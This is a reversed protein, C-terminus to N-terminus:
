WARSLPIVKAGSIPEGKEDIVQGTITGGATLQVQVEPSEDTNIQESWRPAYGEARVHVDYVGSGVTELSFRGQPDDFQTWRDPQVDLSDRVARLGRVRAQFQPIPKDTRADRVTGSLTPRPAFVMEVVLDDSPAVVDRVVKDELGRGSFSLVYTGPELDKVEFEATGDGRPMVQGLVFPEATSSATITISGATTEGLLTIIGRISVLSHPANEPLRVILPESEIPSLEAQMITRALTVGAAFPTHWSIDYAGATVHDLTFTGENDTKFEGVAHSCHWWRPCLSLTVGAAPVGDAYEAYGIVSHGEALVVTVEAIVNPDPLRVVAKGPAYDYEAHQPPGGESEDGEVEVRHWATVLYDGTGPPIGGVLVYGNPETRRRDAFTGLFRFRDDSLSTVVVMADPIGVGNHDVVWVDAMCAKTLGLDQVVQKDNSLNVAPNDQGRQIGVHTLSDVSLDFSGAQHIEDFRYFGEGNTKTRFQRGSSIQVLADPVPKGTDSDTIVGSLVGQPQAGPSQSRNVPSRPDEAVPAEGQAQSDPQAETRVRASVSGSGREAAGADGSSTYAAMDPKSSVPTVSEIAESAVAAADPKTIRRHVLVTGVVLAIGAAALTAKVALTSLIGATATTTSKVATGALAAIVATKFAKGPKTRALTTEIMAAVQGRLMSRGRSIRQRATDESLGLQEAVQRTSQQERYFLILPERLNEPIQALVQSVIAQQERTMAAEAPGSEHSAKDAAAGLPAAQEVLDRKQRRFWNQVTSRAIRCLWPRFKSLDKLQGLGKWARLFAEQALEESEAVSGTASYTIACVLSQYTGVVAGFAQPDGRLSAELLELENKPRGLM